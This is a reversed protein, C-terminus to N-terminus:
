GGRRHLWGGVTKGRNALLVYVLLPTAVCGLWLLLDIPPFKPASASEQLIIASSKRVAFEGLLAGGGALALGVAIDVVLGLARRGEVPTPAPSVAAPSPPPPPTPAPPVPAAHEVRLDLDGRVEDSLFELPEPAAVPPAPEDEVVLEDGSEVGVEAPVLRHGCGKCLLPVRALADPLAFKRHCHPCSLRIM